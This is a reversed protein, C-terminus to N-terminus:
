QIETALSAYDQSQHFIHAIHADGNEEVTYLMLYNNVLASRYGAEALDPDRALPFEVVGQELLDIKDDVADLFADATKTSYVSLYENILGIEAEAADSVVVNRM